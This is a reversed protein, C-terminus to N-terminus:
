RAFPADLCLDKSLLRELRDCKDAPACTASRLFLGENERRSLLARMERGCVGRERKSSSESSKTGEAGSGGREGVVVAVKEWEELLLEDLECQATFTNSCLRDVVSKKFEPEANTCEDQTFYEASWLGPGNTITM